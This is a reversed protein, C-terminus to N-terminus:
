YQIDQICQKPMFHVSYEQVPEFAISKFLKLHCLKLNCELSSEQGENCFFQNLPPRLSSIVIATLDGTLPVYYQIVSNSELFCSIGSKLNMETLLFPFSQNSSSLSLFTSLNRPFSVQQPYAGTLRTLIHQTMDQTPHHPHCIRSTLQPLAVLWVYLPVDKALRQM